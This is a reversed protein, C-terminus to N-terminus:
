DLLSNLPNQCHTYSPRLRWKSSLLLLLLLLLFILSLLSILRCLQVDTTILFVVYIASLLPVASLPWRRRWRDNWVAPLVRSSVHLFYSVFYILLLWLLLLLLLLRHVDASIVDVTWTLDVVIKWINWINWINWIGLIM